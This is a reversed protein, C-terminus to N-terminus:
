GANGWRRWLGTLAVLIGLGLAISPGVSFDHLSAFGLGGLAAVAGVAWTVALRAAWSEALMTAIVPPIILLSFVLVVGGMRVVTTIVVGVLVYFLYDWRLAAYGAARAGEYDESIAQLPRRFIFFVLAAAALIPASVLIDARTVWLISGALMDQVHSHGGPAIGVLFLAGAAAIAYTVGIVAELPIQHIRRRALAFFAAAVLISGFAAVNAALSDEHVGLLIHVAIAGVVAIQALAIDIFIVERRIVHLGVYGLIATMLLCALLPLGQLSFFESM